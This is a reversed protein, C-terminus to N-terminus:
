NEGIQHLMTVTDAWAQHEAIKNDRIRYRRYLTVDITRGTPATGFFMGQHTGIIRMRVLVVDKQGIIEEVKYQKDPFGELLNVLFQKLGEKSQYALDKYDDALFRDVCDFENQNWFSEIFQLVTEVNKQEITTM